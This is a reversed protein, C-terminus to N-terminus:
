FSVSHTEHSIFIGHRNQARSFMLVFHINYHLYTVCWKFPFHTFRSITVRPVSIFAGRAIQVIASSKNLHSGKQIVMEVIEKKSVIFLIDMFKYTRSRASWLDVKKEVWTGIRKGWLLTKLNIELYHENRTRKSKISSM